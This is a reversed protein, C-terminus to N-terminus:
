TTIPEQMAVASGITIHHKNKWAWFGLIVTAFALLVFYLNRPIIPFRAVLHHWSTFFVAGLSLWLGVKQSASPLRAIMQLLVPYIVWFTPALLREKDQGFFSSVVVLFLFFMWEPYPRLLKYAPKIWVLVLLAFPAYANLLLRGWAVPDAVRYVYTSFAAVLNWETNVPHVIFRISMWVLVGFFASLLYIRWLKRPVKERWLYWFAVPLMLLNAERTMAGFILLFLFWGLRHKFLSLAMGLVLLMTIVDGWQYPNFAVFGIFHPNCLLWFLGLLRMEPALNWRELWKYWVVALLGITFLAGIKFGADLGGPWMGALWPPLIRYGFPARVNWALWPSAAAMKRYHGLDKDGFVAIDIQGYWVWCFLVAGFFVLAYQFAPQTLCKSLQTFCKSLPTV